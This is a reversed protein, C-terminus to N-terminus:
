FLSKVMHFHLYVVFHFLICKVLNINSFTDYTMIESWFDYFLRWLIICLMPKMGNEFHILIFQINLLVSRFFHPLLIYQFWWYYEAYRVNFNQNISILQITIILKSGSRYHCQDMLFYNQDVKTAFWSSKTWLSLWYALTEKLFFSIVKIWKWYSRLIVKIFHTADKRHRNSIRRDNRFHILTKDYDHKRLSFHWFIAQLHIM